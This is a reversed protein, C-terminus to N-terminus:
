RHHRRHRKHKRKHKRRAPERNETKKTPAVEAPKVDEATPMAGNPPPAADEAVAMTTSFVVLVFSLLLTKM